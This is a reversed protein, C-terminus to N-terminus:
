LQLKKCQVNANINAFLAIETNTAEYSHPHTLYQAAQEVYISFM